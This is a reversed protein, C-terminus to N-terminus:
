LSKAIEKRFDDLTVSGKELLQDALAKAPKWLIRNSGYCSLVRDVSEKEDRVFAQYISLLARSDSLPDHLRGETPIQYLDLLRHISLPMGDPGVLYRSLYAEFDFYHQFLYLRDKVEEPKGFDLSRSLMMTDNKGYSVFLPESYPVLLEKVDSLMKSFTVGKERLLQPTIGTMKKVLPGISDKTQLYCSYPVPTEGSFLDGKKKPVLLLGLAIAKHSFQTGEFDFFVLADAPRVKASLAPFTM